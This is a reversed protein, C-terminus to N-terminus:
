IGDPDHSRISRVKNVRWFRCDTVPTVEVAHGGDPFGDEAYEVCKQGTAEERVYLVGFISTKEKSPNDHVDVIEEDM